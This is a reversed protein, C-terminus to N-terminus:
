NDSHCLSLISGFTGIIRGGRGQKVMQIAAYKYTLLVGRLNIAIVRDFEAVDVLLLFLTLDAAEWLKPVYM